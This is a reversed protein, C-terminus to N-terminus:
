LVYRFDEQDEVADAGTNPHRRDFEKNHWMLAIVVLILTVISLCAFGVGTAFGTPYRPAQTTIFVNSAVFNACNGIGLQVASSIAQQPRGRLNSNLWGILIPFQMFSGFAIIYLAFYRVGPPQVQKLQICWGILAFIAGTLVFPWRLSLKGSAYSTSLTVVIGVIWIPISMVQATSATWHLQALITPTFSSISAAGMDACFYILTFAWIKWDTLLKVWNIGEFNIRENGRDHQLRALLLSREEDTLFTAEQPFRPIIFWSAVGFVFTFLGELIFVWRWSEYGGTGGM